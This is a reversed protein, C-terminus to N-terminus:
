VADSILGGTPTEVAESAVSFNATFHFRSGEGPSSEVWIRGGFLSVLRSCIALGLGTGGYKRTTSGDGQQFSQFIHDRAEAPIGIGTDAVTFQLVISSPGRNVAAVHVSISGADTFKLANSMLNLLIQHLRYPDGVLQDCVDKDMRSNVVLRKRNADPAILQVVRQVCASLSFSIEELVLQGAEIKSFDLVDNLIRTLAHSSFQVTTVYDRQEETLPTDLLLDTFGVIANMPTRIEHSMNALFEGKSRSAM